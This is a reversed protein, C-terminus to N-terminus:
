REEEWKLGYFISFFHLINLLLQFSRNLYIMMGIVRWIEGQCGVVDRFEKILVGIM